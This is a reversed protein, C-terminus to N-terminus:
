GGQGRRMKLGEAGRDHLHRPPIIVRTLRSYSVQSVGLSRTGPQGRTAAGGWHPREVRLPGFGGIAHRYPAAYYIELFGHYSNLYQFMGNVRLAHM